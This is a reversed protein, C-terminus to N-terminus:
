VCSLSPVGTVMHCHCKQCYDTVINTMCCDGGDFGCEPVNLEDQCKGDAIAELQCELICKKKLLSLSFNYTPM